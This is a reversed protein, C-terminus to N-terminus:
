RAGFYTTSQLMARPLSSAVFIFCFLVRAALEPTHLALSQRQRRRQQHCGGSSLIGLMKLKFAENPISLAGLSIFGASLVAWYHDRHGGRLSLRPVTTRDLRQRRLRRVGGHTQAISRHVPGDLRQGGM